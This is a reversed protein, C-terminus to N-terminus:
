QTPIKYVLQSLSAKQINNPLFEYVVIFKWENCNSVIEDYFYWIRYRLITSRLSSFSTLIILLFSERNLDKSKKFKHAFNIQFCSTKPFATIVQLYYRYRIYTTPFFTEFNERELRSSISRDLLWTTSMCRPLKWRRGLYIRILM